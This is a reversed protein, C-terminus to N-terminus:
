LPLSPAPHLRPCISLHHPWLGLSVQSQQFGCCSPSALSPGTRCIDSPACGQRCGSKLGRAELVTAGAVRDIACQSPLGLVRMCCLLGKPEAAARGGVM